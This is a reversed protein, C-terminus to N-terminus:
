DGCDPVVATSCQAVICDGCATSFEEFPDTQCATRCLANYCDIEYWVNRSAASRGSDFQCELTGGQDGYFGYLRPDYQKGFGYADGSKKWQGGFGKVIYYQFIMFAGLIFAILTMYEITASGKKGRVTKMM